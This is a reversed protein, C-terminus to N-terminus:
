NPISMMPKTDQLLLIPEIFPAIQSLLNIVSMIPTNYFFKLKNDYKWLQDAYLFISYPSDGIHDNNRDFGEYRDWYNYAIANNQNPKAKLDQLVDEINGRIINHTIMNNKISSHFHFVEMNFLFQNNNIFRQTGRENGKEDIYLAKANYKVINNNFHFNSVKDAVVAIGAAGKSSLIENDTKGLLTIPKNIIINGRYLGSLLELVAGSPAKDITKQLINATSFVVLILFFLLIKLM